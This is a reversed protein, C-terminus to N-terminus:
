YSRKEYITYDADNNGGATVTKIRFYKVNTPTDKELWVDATWSAAGFWDTSVDQYTCSAAATGDDQITAEVSVTCTDTAAGIEVQIAFTKYGDMDVYYYTTANTENTVDALTEEVHHSSIPNSETIGLKGTTWNYGALVQEGYQTVVFPTYDGDTGTLSTQSDQRVGLIFNGTDGTSHATDETKEALTVTRLWGTANVQLPSYDSDTGALAASSNLRVALMQIGIDGSNHQTDEAYGTLSGPLTLVDIQPHGAADVLAFSSTSSDSINTAWVAVNDVIVNGDITLETDVMLKGDASMRLHGYQGNTFTPAATTYYAGIITAYSENKNDVTTTAGDSCLSGFRRTNLGPAM